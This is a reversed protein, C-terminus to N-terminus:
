RDLFAKDLYNLVSGRLQDLSVEDDQLVLERKVFDLPFGTLESLSTLKVTNGEFENEFTWDESKKLARLPAVNTQSM